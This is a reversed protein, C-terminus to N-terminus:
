VCRNITTIIIIIVAYNNHGLIHTERLTEGLSRSSSSAFPQTQNMENNGAKVAPDDNNVQGLKQPIGSPAFHIPVLLHHHCVTTKRVSRDGPFCPLLGTDRDEPVPVHEKIVSGCGHRQRGTLNAQKFM